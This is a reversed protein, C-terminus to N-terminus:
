KRQWAHLLVFRTKTAGRRVLLGHQPFDGYLQQDCGLVNALAVLNQNLVM